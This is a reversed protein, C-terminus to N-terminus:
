LLAVTPSSAPVKSDKRRKRISVSLYGLNLNVITKGTLPSQAESPCQWEHKIKENRKKYAKQRSQNIITALSKGSALRIHVQISRRQYMM